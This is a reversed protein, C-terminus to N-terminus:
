KKRRPCFHMEIVFKDLFKDNSAVIRIGTEAEKEKGINIEKNM